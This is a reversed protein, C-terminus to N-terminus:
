GRAAYSVSQQTTPCFPCALPLGVPVEFGSPYTARGLSAFSGSSSFGRYRFILSRLEPTSRMLVPGAQGDTLNHYQLIFDGGRYTQV